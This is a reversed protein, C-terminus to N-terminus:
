KIVKSEKGFVKKVLAIAKLTEPPKRSILLVEDFSTALDWYDTPDSEYIGAAAVKQVGAEVRKVGIESESESDSKPSPNPYISSERELSEEEKGEQIHQNSAPEISTKREDDIPFDAQDTGDYDMLNLFTILTYGKDVGRRTEIRLIELTNLARLFKNVTERNWHWRKALQVQSTLFGGSPIHITRGGVFVKSPRYNASMKLDVLAELDTYRRTKPWLRSDRISRPLRIWGQEM